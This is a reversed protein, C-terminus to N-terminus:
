ENTMYEKNYGTIKYTEIIKAPIQSTDKLFVIM